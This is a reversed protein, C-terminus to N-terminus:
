GSSILLDSLSFVVAGRLAGQVSSGALHPVAQRTLALVSPGAYRVAAIYGAATENGDAPRFFLLNPTSRCL